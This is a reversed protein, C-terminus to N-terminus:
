RNDLMMHEWEKEFEPDMALNEHLIWLGEANALFILGRKDDRSIATVNAFEQSVVPHTPDAFNMIRFTQPKVALDTSNGADSTLAATGAATVIRGGTLGPSVDALVSPNSPDTIDILTVAKGNSSEAYLYDRRYHQTLLLKGAGERSLPLHAVVEIQDQPPAAKHRIKAGLPVVILALWAFALPFRVFRIM